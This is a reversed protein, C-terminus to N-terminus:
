LFKVSAWVEGLVQVINVVWDRLAHLRRNFRSVSLGRIYGLRTLICLALEHHNQFYKAAVIAVLIVESASSQARADDQYGYAKLVDDMVVFATVIYDNDM